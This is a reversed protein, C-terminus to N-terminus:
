KVVGALVGDNGISETPCGTLAEEALELEEPTIPQRYVVSYGIEDHRMFFQPAAARCQDCDICTDDVYYSGAVNQPFRDTPNAM